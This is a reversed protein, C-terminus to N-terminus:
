GTGRVPFCAGGGEDCAGYDVKFLNRRAFEFAERIQAESLQIAREDPLVVLHLDSNADLIIHGIDNESDDLLEVLAAAGEPPALVQLTLNQITRGKM